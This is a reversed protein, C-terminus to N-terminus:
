PIGAAGRRPIEVLRSPVPIRTGKDDRVYYISGNLRNYRLLEDSQLNVVAQSYAPLGKPKDIVADRGFLGITVVSSATSHHYYAEYGKQRLWACYDAAAQKFEWFDDTTEFVAVQLSYVGTQRSLEWAANGVDETPVRVIMAQVFYRQGRDDGLQKILELDNRLQPPTDHKRTKADVRRWYTGYYLRAFGDPEDRVTVEKTRIGPTHRLSEATQELLRMREPGQSEKCRITWPTGKKGLGLAPGGTGTACGGGFPLGLWLVIVM